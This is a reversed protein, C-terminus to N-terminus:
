RRSYRNISHQRTEFYFSLLRYHLSPTEDIAAQSSSIYFSIEKLINLLGQNFTYAEALTRVNPPLDITCRSSVPNPFALLVTCRWERYLRALRHQFTPNIIPHQVGEM